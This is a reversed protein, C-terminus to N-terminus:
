HFIFITLNKQIHQRNMPMPTCADARGASLRTYVSACCNVRMPFGSGPPDYKWRTSVAAYGASGGATLCSSVLEAPKAMLKVVLLVCIAAFHHVSSRFGPLLMVAIAYSPNSRYILRSPFHCNAPTPLGAVLVHLSYVSTSFISCPVFSHRSYRGSYSSVTDSCTPTSASAVMLAPGLGKLLFMRM